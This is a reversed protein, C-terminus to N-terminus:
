KIYVKKKFIQFLIKEIDTKNKNVLKRFSAEVKKYGCTGSCGNNGLHYVFNTIENNTNNFLSKNNGMIKYLEPYSINM